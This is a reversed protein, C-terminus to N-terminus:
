SAHYHEMPDEKEMFKPKIPPEVLPHSTLTKAHIFALSSNQAEIVKLLVINALFEHVGARKFRHIPELQAYVKYQPM